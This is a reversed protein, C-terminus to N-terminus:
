TASPQQTEPMTASEEPLPKGPESEEGVTFQSKNRREIVREIYGQVDNYDDDSLGFVAAELQENSTISSLLRSAQRAECQSVLIYAGVASFDTSDEIKTLLKNCLVSVRESFPRLQVKRKFFFRGPLTVEPPHDNFADETTKMTKM